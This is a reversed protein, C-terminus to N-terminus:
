RSLVANFYSSLTTIEDYVSKRFVKCERCTEYTGSVIMKCDPNVALSGSEDWCHVSRNFSSCNTNGCNMLTSCEVKEVFIRKSLDATGVALERLDMSIKGIPSLVRKVAVTSTVLTVSMFVALIIVFSTIQTAIRRNIDSRIGDIVADIDDIYIGTGIIWPRQDIKRVFSLKPYLTNKDAGPKPWLYPVFGEQEPGECVEAFAQFLNKNTGMACNYKPNDLVKGDLDPAIPHMIMRPYPLQADNIWFYGSNDSGYRASKIKAIITEDTDSPSISHGLADVMNKLMEKKEKMLLDRTSAVHQNERNKLTFISM